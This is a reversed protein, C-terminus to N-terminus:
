DIEVVQFVIWPQANLPFWWTHHSKSSRSPTPLVKGLEPNLGGLAIKSKKFRPIRKTLQYADTRDRYISLGAAQCETVGQPLEKDINEQRWSRFDDANPPNYMVLRYVKNLADEAEKPPCDDPLYNWDM